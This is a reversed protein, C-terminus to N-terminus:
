TAPLNIAPRCAGGLEKWRARYALAEAGSEIMPLFQPMTVLPRLGAEVEMERVEGLHSCLLRLKPSQELAQELLADVNKQVKQGNVALLDDGPYIPMAELPSGPWISEVRASGGAQHSCELGLRALGPSNPSVRAMLLGSSRAIDELYPDLTAKGAVLERYVFEMEPGGEAVLANLYDERTFGWPLATAQRFLSFLVDDLSRSGQSQKRILHDFIMAVLYGKTYFSIRRHPFGSTDYGNVWSDFSAEELSLYDKGAMSYHRSLEGNISEIWEDWNWIGAKWLMLDGYYTTIGETVDHMASYQERQYDYPVLDAPRMAKVNWTHFFEHSSIELLSRHSSPSGLQQGPGMVIVTSQQHEVGHRYAHPWFLYLYHYEQTPCHGFLDIQTRSYAAIERILRPVLAQHRGYIWLRADLGDVPVLHQELSPAALIPSDLLEHINDCRFPSLKEAFPGGLRFGPPLDLLLSAPNEAGGQPVLLFTIPNLYILQHDVFSSGADQQNAFSRYTIRLLGEKPPSLVWTQSDSKHWAVPTGDAMAASFDALNKAFFQRTYRGPRWLPLQLLLPASTAELELEIDILQQTARPFSLTYQIM